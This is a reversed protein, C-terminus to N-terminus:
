RGTLVSAAIHSAWTISMLHATQPEEEWLGCLLHSTIHFECVVFAMEFNESEHMSHCPSIFDPVFVSIHKLIWVWMPAPEFIPWVKSGCIVHLLALYWIFLEEGALSCINFKGPPWLNISDGLSNVKIVHYTRGIHECSDCISTYEWVSYFPCHLKMSFHHRNNKKCSSHSTKFHNRVHMIWTSYLDGGVCAWQVVMM